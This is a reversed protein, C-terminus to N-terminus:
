QNNEREETEKNGSENEKAKMVNEIMQLDNNNLKGVLKCTTDLYENMKAEKDNLHMKKQNEKIDPKNVKGKITAFINDKQIKEYMDHDEEIAINAYNLANDIEGKIMAIRALYYYAGAEVEESTICEEFHKKAEDLDGYILSLQGLTYKAHFLDSNINAAKEYNEKAKQFDNLMTYTMGLSYYLNYDAPKYRLASAYIQAADKYEGEDYLINALSMSANYNDPNQELVEALIQKAEIKRDCEYYLTGIAIRAQIDDEDIELIKEYEIIANEKNDEIEYLKALKKHGLISNPYKEVLNVLCKEAKNYKKTTIYWSSIIKDLGETFNIKRFYQLAFILIPIIVSLIYMIIKTIISFNINFILGVFSMLIGIFQIILIYVYNTDNKIILEIFMYIFLTFALLDFIIKEIM